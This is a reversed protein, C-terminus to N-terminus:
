LGMEGEGVVQVPCLLCEKEPESTVSGVFFTNDLIGKRVEKRVGKFNRNVCCSDEPKTVMGGWLMPALLEVL